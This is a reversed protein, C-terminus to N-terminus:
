YCVDCHLLNCCEDGPGTLTYTQVRDGEKSEDQLLANVVEAVDFDNVFAIRGNKVSVSITRGCVMEFLRGHLFRQMSTNPRLLQLKRGQQLDQQLTQEITWHTRGLEVGSKEGLLGEACSVKIVHPLALDKAAKALNLENKLLAPDDEGSSFIAGDCGEMAEAVEKTKSFDVITPRDFLEPHRNAMQPALRAIDTPADPAFAVRLCVRSNTFCDSVTKLVQLNLPAHRTVPLLFTKIAM